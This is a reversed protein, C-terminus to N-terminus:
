ENFVDAGNEKLKLMAADNYMSGSGDINFDYIHPNKFWENLNMRLKLTDSANNIVMNKTVGTHVLHQNKGMHMAFGYATDNSTYYGEFKMFHYGGGMMTPWAMNMNDLNNELAGTINHLSDLGVLFTASKYTGQPIKTLKFLIGKNEFADVYVVEDSTVKSGDNREFEFASLYFQLRDVSYPYGAATQFKMTDFELPVGDMHFELRVNFSTDTPAPEEDEDRKCGSVLVLGIALVVLSLIGNRQRM